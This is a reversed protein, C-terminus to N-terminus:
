KELINYYFFSTLTRVFNEDRELTKGGSIDSDWLHAFVELFKSNQQIKILLKQVCIEADEFTKQLDCKLM